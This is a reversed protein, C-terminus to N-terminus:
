PFRREDLETIKDMDFKATIRKTKEHNNKDKYVLYVKNANSIKKFNDKEIFDFFVVESQSFANMLIMNTDKRNKSKERVKYFDCDGKCPKSEYLHKRCCGMFIIRIDRISQDRASNNYIFIKLIYAFENDSSKKNEFSDITVSYMDLNFSIFQLLWGLITGLLTGIVGVIACVLQVNNPNMNNYM